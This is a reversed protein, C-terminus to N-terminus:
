HGNYELRKIPREHLVLYKSLSVKTYPFGKARTQGIPTNSTPYSPTAPSHTGPYLWFGPAQCYQWRTPHLSIHDSIAM